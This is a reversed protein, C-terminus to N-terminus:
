FVAGAGNGAAFDDLLIYMSVIADVLSLFFGFYFCCGGARKKWVLRFTLEVLYLVVVQVIM